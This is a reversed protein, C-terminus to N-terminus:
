CIFCSMTVGIVIILMLRTYLYVVLVIVDNPELCFLCITSSIRVYLSVLVLLYIIHVVLWVEFTVKDCISDRIFFFGLDTNLFPPEICGFVQPYLFRMGTTCKRAVHEPSGLYHFPAVSTISEDCTMSIKGVPKNVYNSTM